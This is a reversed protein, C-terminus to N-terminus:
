PMWAKDMDSVINFKVVKFVKTL